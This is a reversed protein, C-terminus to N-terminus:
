VESSVELAEELTQCARTDDIGITSVVFRAAVQILRNGGVVVIFRNLSLDSIRRRLLARNPADPIRTERLDVVLTRPSADSLLEEARQFLRNTSAETVHPVQKLIVLGPRELRVRQFAEDTSM